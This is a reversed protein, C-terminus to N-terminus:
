IHVRLVVNGAIYWRGGVNVLTMENLRAGDDFVVTAIDGIITISKFRIETESGLGEPNRPAALRGSSDILSQVEEQTLNRGEKEVKSWLEELRLAGNKWWSFYALKYDLYGATNSATDGYDQVLKLCGPSLEGGRPDNIFVSAFETTDFTHAAYGEIEYAKEITAQIAKSDPTDPVGPVAQTQPTPSLGVRVALLTVLIGVMFFLKKKDM